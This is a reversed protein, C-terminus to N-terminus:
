LLAIAWRWDFLSGRIKAKGTLFCRSFYVPVGGALKKDWGGLSVLIDETSVVVVGIIHACFGHFVSFFALWILATVVIMKFSFAAPSHGVNWMRSLSTEISRMSNMSVLSFIGTWNAGAPHWQLFADSLAILFNFVVENSPQVSCM